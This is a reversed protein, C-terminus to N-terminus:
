KEAGAGDTAGDLTRASQSLQSMLTLTRPDWGIRDASLAAGDLQNHFQLARKRGVVQRRRRRRRRRRLPEVQLPQHHRAILNRALPEPSRRRGSRSRGVQRSLAKLGGVCLAQHRHACTACSASVRSRKSTM